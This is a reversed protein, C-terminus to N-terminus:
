SRFKWAPPLSHHRAAQQAISTDTLNWVAAGGRLLVYQAWRAQRASCRMYFVRMGYYRHAALERGFVGVGRDWLWRECDVPAAHLPPSFELTHVGRGQAIFLASRVLADAKDIYDWSAIIDALRETLPVHSATEEPPAAHSDDM